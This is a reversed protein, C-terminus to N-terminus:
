DPHTSLMGEDHSRIPRLDEKMEALWEEEIVNDVDVRRRMQITRPSANLNTVAMARRISVTEADNVTAGLSSPRWTPTYQDGGQKAKIEELEDRIKSNVEEETRQERAAVVVPAVAVAAVVVAPAIVVAASPEQKPM